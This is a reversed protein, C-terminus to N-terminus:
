SRARGVSLVARARLEFPEGPAPEVFVSLADCRWSEGLVSEFHRDAAARLAAADPADIGSLSGSLTFHCRWDDLVFAYGLATVQSRQRADLGPKMQRRLEAVTPRARWRDLRIVCDDALRRLPHDPALPVTPRLALFDDLRGVELRPMSFVVHDRAVGRVAALFAAENVGAALRMPAKLTAHFGYRWPSRVIERAPAALAPGRTPDRGLWACGALWLAHDAPPTLYVAYRPASGTM